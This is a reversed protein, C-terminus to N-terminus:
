KQTWLNLTVLSAKTREWVCLCATTSNVHYFIYRIQEVEQVVFSPCSNEYIVNVYHITMSHGCFISLIIFVICDDMKKWGVFKICPECKYYSLPFM